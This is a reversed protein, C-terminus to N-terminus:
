RRGEAPSILARLAATSFDPSDCFACVRREQEHIHAALEPIKEAIEPPICVIGDRDGHVVDGTKIRMGAEDVPGGMEIVHCYAHSPSLNGSFAHLGIEAFRRTGRVAGTTVIGTFGMAQLICAHVPGVLTGRGPHSDVDEIVLVRPFNAEGLHEWWDSHELYFGRRMTPDATRVKLTVAVGVMSPLGPTRCAIGPGSFGENLMRVQLTDVANAISCTDFKALQAFVRNLPDGDM